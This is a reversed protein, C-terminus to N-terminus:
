RGVAVRSAERIANLMAEHEESTHMPFNAVRFNHDKLPGYCAGTWMNLEKAWKARLDNANLSGSNVAFLTPSRYQPETVMCGFSTDELAAYFAAARDRVGKRLTDLGIQQYKKVAKNLLYVGLVNPTEATMNQAAYEAVRPFAHFTGISQTKELERARELARESVVVVSLGAVSHFGKQVSWMAVDVLSWDLQCHPMSSVVDVMFMKDPYRRALQHIQEEPTWLGISTENNTICIAEATDPVEIEGFNGDFEHSYKWEVANRGLWGAYQHWRMAFEGGVTHFTETTTLCQMAREWAENSSTMFLISHTDPISLLSKLRAKVDAFLELFWPSRHSQWVAGEDAADQLWQAMEPHVKTPGPALVIPKM